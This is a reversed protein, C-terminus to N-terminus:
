KKRCVPPDLRRLRQLHATLKFDRFTQDFSETIGSVHYQEFVETTPLDRTDYLNFYAFSLQWYPQALLDSDLDPANPATSPTRPGIAVSIRRPGVSSAGNMVVKNYVPGGKEAWGLLEQAHAVPYLTGEPLPVAVTRAKQAENAPLEYKVEGGRRTLRAAGKFAEESLGNKVTLVAFTYDRGNKSENSSFFRENTFQSDDSFVLNMVTHSKTEWGDCTEAFRWEMIGTAARPGGTSSAQTLHIEYVAEYSPLVATAANVGGSFFVALLPLASLLGCRGAM